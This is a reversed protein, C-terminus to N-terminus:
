EFEHNAAPKPSPDGILLAATFTLETPASVQIQHSWFHTYKRKFYQSGNTCAIVSPRREGAVTGLGSRSHRINLASIPVQM